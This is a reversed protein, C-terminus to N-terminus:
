SWSVLVRQNGRDNNIEDSYDLSSQVHPIQGADIDPNNSSTFKGSYCLEDLIGRGTAMRYTYPVKPFGVGSM